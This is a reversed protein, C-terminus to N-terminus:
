AQHRIMVEFLYDPLSRTEHVFGNRALIPYLPRPERDILVRLTQGDKLFTLANLVHEMPEPAEMNRLDLEVNRAGGCQGCCGQSAAAPHQTLSTM